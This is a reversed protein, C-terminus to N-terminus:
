CNKYTKKKILNRFRVKVAISLINLYVLICTWKRFRISIQDFYSFLIIWDKFFQYFYYEWCLFHVAFKKHITWKTFLFYNVCVTLLYYSIYILSFINQGRFHAIFFLFYSVWCYGACPVAAHGKWLADRTHPYLAAADRSSRRQQQWECREVDGASSGHGGFEYSGSFISYIEIYINYQTKRKLGNM